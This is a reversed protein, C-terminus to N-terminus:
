TTVDARCLNMFNHFYIYAMCYVIHKVIYETTKVCTRQLMETGMSLGTRYVSIIDV